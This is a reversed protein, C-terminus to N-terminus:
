AGKRPVSQSSYRSRSSLKELWTKKSLYGINYFIYTFKKLNKRRNFPYSTVTELIYAGNKLEREFLRQEFPGVGVQAGRGKEKEM